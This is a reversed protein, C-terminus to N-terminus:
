RAHEGAVADLAARLAPWRSAFSGGRCSFSLIREDERVRDPTEEGAGTLFVVGLSDLLFLPAAAEGWELVAVAGADLQEEIGLEDVESRRELRWLDGHLIVPKTEYARLLTFTPSTVAEEPSLAAVLGQVFTTKGAGLGGTLLCVDGGRVVRAVAGGFAATM